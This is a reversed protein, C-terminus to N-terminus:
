GGPAELVGCLYYVLSLQSRYLHALLWGPPVLLLIWFCGPIDLIPFIVAFLLFLIWGIVHTLKTSPCYAVGCM